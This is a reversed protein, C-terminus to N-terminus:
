PRPPLTSIVQRRSPADCANRCQMWNPSCDEPADTSLCFYYSSACSTRCRQADGSPTLSVIPSFPAAPASSPAAATTLPTPPPTPPKRGQQAGAPAALGLTLILLLPVARM